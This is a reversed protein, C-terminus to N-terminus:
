KSRKTIKGNQNEKEICNPCIHITTRGDFSKSLQWGNLSALYNASSTDKEGTEIENNLCSDCKIMFSKTFMEIKENM